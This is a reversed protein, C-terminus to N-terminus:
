FAITATVPRHDSASPANVISAEYTIAPTQAYTAIYDICEVPHNAPFTHCQPSNIVFQARMSQIFPSDPHANWDGAIVFPKGSASAAERIFELSQMRCDEELALHTCAATFNKFEVILLLRPEKGPLPIRRVSLPKERSLIGIGYGGGDFDIAKGFIGYMGSLSALLATQDVRGSRSCVSDLEQLMVIDPREVNIIAATRQPNIENDMGALHRVNYSMVKVTQACAAGSSLFLTLAALLRSRGTLLNKLTSIISM